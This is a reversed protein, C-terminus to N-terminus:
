SLLQFYSWAYYAQLAVTSLIMVGLSYHAWNYKTDSVHVKKIAEVLGIDELVAIAPALMILYYPHFFGGISFFGAVPILWGAWLITEQQKENFVYWKQKRRRSAFFGVFLGIIATSLRWSAITGLASEFVRLPRM